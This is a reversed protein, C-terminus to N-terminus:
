DIVNQAKLHQLIERTVASVIAGDTSSLFRLEAIEGHPAPTGIHDAAYTDVAVEVDTKGDAPAVFRGRPAITAPDIAVGLEEAIERVLAQADDEGAEPKGGPIYFLDRGESRVCLMRRDVVHVWGIKRITKTM